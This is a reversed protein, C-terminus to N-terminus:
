DELDAVKIPAAKKGSKPRTYGLVKKEDVPEPAEVEAPKNAEDSEDGAEDPVRDLSITGAAEDVGSVKFTVEDGPELDSLEEAQDSTLVLPKPSADGTTNLPSGGDGPGGGAVGPNANDDM